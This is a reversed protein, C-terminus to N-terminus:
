RVEEAHKHPPNEIVEVKVRGEDELQGCVIGSAERLGVLCGGCLNMVARVMGYELGGAVTVLWVAPVDESLCGECMAGEVCKSFKIM